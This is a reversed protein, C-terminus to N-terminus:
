LNLFSNIKKELNDEDIEYGEEFKIIDIFDSAQQLLEKAKKNEEIYKILMKKTEEESLKWVENAEKNDKEHDVYCTKDHLKSLIFDQVEQTVEIDENDFRIQYTTHDFNVNYIERLFFDFEQNSEENILVGYYLCITEDIGSIEQQPEFKVKFNKM